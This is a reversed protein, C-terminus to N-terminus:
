KSTSVPSLSQFYHAVDISKLEQCYIPRHPCVNAWFPTCLPLYPCKKCKDQTPLAAKPSAFHAPKETLSGIISDDTLSDCCYLTGDPAIVTGNGGDADCYGTRFLPPNVLHRYHLGSEELYERLEYAKQFLEICSEYAYCQFLMRFYLFLHDSNHFERRIDELFAKMGPLNEADYNCRLIVELDAKLLTHIAQMMRNYNHSSPNLYAKRVEYDKQTGDVSVQVKKLKWTEKAEHALEETILMANTIIESTFPVDNQSLRRCIHSIINNAILPEGGFWTIEIGSRDYTQLIFDVTQDATAIDMNKIPMGEEFCYICRANCGTTPLIVYRKLSDKRKKLNKLLMSTLTYLQYEDTEAEVVMRVQILFDLGHEKLWQGSAGKESLITIAKWEQDNLSLTMRTLLDLLFHGGDRSPLTYRSLRYTATPVFDKKEIIKRVRDDGVRVIEM